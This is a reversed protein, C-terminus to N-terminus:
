PEIPECVVAHIKGLASAIARRLEWFPQEGGHGTMEAAVKYWEAVPMTVALTIHAHEVDHVGGTVCIM